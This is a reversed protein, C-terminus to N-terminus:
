EVPYKGALLHGDSTVALRDGNDNAGVRKPYASGM